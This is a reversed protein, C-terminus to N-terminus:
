LGLIYKLSIASLTAIVVYGRTKEDRWLSRYTANDSLPNKLSKGDAVLFVKLFRPFILTFTCLDILWTFFGKRLQDVTTKLRVTLRKASNIEKFRSLQATLDTELRRRAEEAQHGGFQGNRATFAELAVRSADAHEYELKLPNVSFFQRLQARSLIKAERCICSSM